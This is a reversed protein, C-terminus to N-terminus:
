KSAAFPDEGWVKDNFWDVFADALMENVGTAKDIMADLASRPPPMFRKGTDAEFAKRFKDDDLAVRIASLWMGAMIPNDPYAIRQPKPKSKKGKKM